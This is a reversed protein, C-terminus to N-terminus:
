PGFLMDMRQALCQIFLIQVDEFSVTVSLVIITLIQASKREPQTVHESVFRSLIVLDM